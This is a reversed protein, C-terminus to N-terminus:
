GCNLNQHGVFLKRVVPPFVPLIRWGSELMVEEPPLELSICESEFEVPLDPGITAGRAAYEELVLQLSIILKMLILLVTIQIFTNVYGSM